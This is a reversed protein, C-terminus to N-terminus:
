LRQNWGIRIEGIKIPSLLDDELLKGIAIILLEVPLSNEIEVGDIYIYPYAQFNEPLYEIIPQSPFGFEEEEFNDIIRIRKLDPLRMNLFNIATKATPCNPCDHNTIIFRSEMM